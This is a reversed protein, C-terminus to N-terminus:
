WESAWYDKKDSCIEYDGDEAFDSSGLPTGGNDHLSLALVGTTAVAYRHLHPAIYAKKM